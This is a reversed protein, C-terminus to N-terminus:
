IEGIEGEVRSFLLLDFNVFRYVPLASMFKYFFLLLFRAKSFLSFIDFATESDFLFLTKFDM